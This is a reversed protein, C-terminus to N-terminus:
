LEDISPLFSSPPEKKSGSTSKRWATKTSGISSGKHSGKPYKKQEGYEDLEIVDDEGGDWSWDDKASVIPAMPAYALEVRELFRPDLEDVFMSPRNLILADAGMTLPYSLFLREKARTCAVYFLRREEEVGGEEELARRNPFANDALHLIFVTNWELGKAQHVTSLVLREEDRNTGHERVSLVGDYLSVDALFSAIDDYGEAFLAFQEIDELRDRWNPHERELYDQYSSSAVARIMAAPNPAEHLMVRIIESLDKWGTKAKAPLTDGLDGELASPLEHFGIAIKATREAMVAGIGTQM